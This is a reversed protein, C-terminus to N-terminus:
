RQPNDPNEFLEEGNEGYDAKDLEDRRTEMRDKIALIWKVPLISLPGRLEDDIRDLKKHDAEDIETQLFKVNLIQNARSSSLRSVSAGQYDSDDVSSIGLAISAAYRRAYTTAAGKIQPKEKVDCVPYDSSESAGSLHAVTTVVILMGDSIKTKQFLVLGLNPMADRAVNLVDVLDAYKFSYQGANATKTKEPDKVVKQLKALAAYLQSTADAQETM